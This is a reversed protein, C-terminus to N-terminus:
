QMIIEAIRSKLKAMQWPLTTHGENFNYHECNKVNKIIERSNKIPVLFDKDGTIYITKTNINKAINSLDKRAIHTFTKVALKLESVTYKSLSEASSSMFYKPVLKKTKESFIKSDFLFDEIKELFDFIKYYFPSFNYTIPPDSIVLLKLDEPYKVAYAYALKAGFSHGMLVIPTKLKEQLIFKYILDIYDDIGWEAEPIDSRMFSPYELSVVNFNDFFNSLFRGTKELRGNLDKSISLGDLWLLTPKTKNEHVRYYINLNNIQVSKSLM